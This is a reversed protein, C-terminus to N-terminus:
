HSKVGHIISQHGFGHLERSVPLLPHPIQTAPFFASKLAEELDLSPKEGPRCAKELFEWQAKMFLLLILIRGTAAEQIVAALLAINIFGFNLHRDNRNITIEPYCQGRGLPTNYDLAPPARFLM